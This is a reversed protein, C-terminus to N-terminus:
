EVVTVVVAVPRGAGVPDTVNEAPDVVSQVAVNDFPLPEHLEVAAGTPESVTEPAYEPSETKPPEVPDVVSSTSSGDCVAIVALGLGTVIPLWTM